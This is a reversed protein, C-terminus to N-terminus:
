TAARASRRPPRADPACLQHLTAFALEMESEVGAARLVRCDQAAQEALRDLLASKGVGPEGHLVLARSDGTRVSNVIQELTACEADRGFLKM